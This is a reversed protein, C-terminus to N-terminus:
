SGGATALATEAAIGLHDALPESEIAFRVGYHAHQSGTHGVTKFRVQEAWQCKLRVLDVVIEVPEEDHAAQPGSDSKLLGVGIHVADRAADGLDIGNEFLPHPELTSRRWFSKVLRSVM